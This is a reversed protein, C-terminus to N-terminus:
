HAIRVPIPWLLASNMKDYKPCCRGTREGGPPLPAKSVIQVSWSQTVPYPGTNELGVTLLVDPAVGGAAAQVAAEVWCHLNRKERLGQLEGLDKPHM